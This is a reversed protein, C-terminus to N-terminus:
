AQESYFGFQKFNWYFVTQNGGSLVVTNATKAISFISDTPSPQSTLAGVSTVLDGAGVTPDLAQLTANTIRIEDGVEYGYGPASVSLSYDTVQAGNNIVALDLTMGVGAGDTQVPVSLYPNDTNAASSPIEFPTPLTQVNGGSWVLAVHSFTIEDESGDHSFVTVKQVLGVGGDAYNGFDDSNYGIMARKYGGLGLAVENSLWVSDAVGGGPTYVTGPANILRAEFLSGDYRDRLMDDIEVASIKAAITM